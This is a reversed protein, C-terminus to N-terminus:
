TSNPLGVGLAYKCLWLLSTASREHVDLLAAEYEPGDSNYKWKCYAYDAAVKGGISAARVFRIAGEAHPRTSHVPYICHLRVFRM